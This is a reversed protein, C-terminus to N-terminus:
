HMPVHVTAFRSIARVNWEANDGAPKLWVGLNMGIGKRKFVAGRLAIALAEFLERPSPTV